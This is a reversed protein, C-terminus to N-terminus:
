HLTFVTYQKTYFIICLDTIVFVAVFCATLQFVVSDIFRYM